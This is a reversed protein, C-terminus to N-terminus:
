VLWHSLDKQINRFIHISQSLNFFITMHIRVPAAQRASLPKLYIPQDLFTTCTHVCKIKESNYEYQKM